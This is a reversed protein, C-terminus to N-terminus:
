IDILIGTKDQREPPAKSTKEVIQKCEVCDEPNRFVRFPIHEPIEARAKDVRNQLEFRKWEADTPKSKSGGPTSALEPEEVIQGNGWPEANKPTPYAVAQASFYDGPLSKLSGNSSKSM